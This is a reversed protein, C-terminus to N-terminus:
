NIKFLTLTSNIEDMRKIKWTVTDKILKPNDSELIAIIQYTGDTLVLKKIMGLKEIENKILYSVEPDCSIFVFASHTEKM